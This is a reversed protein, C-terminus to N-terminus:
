PQGLEGAILIDAVVGADEPQLGDHETMGRHVAAALEGGEVLAPNPPKALHRQLRGLRAGLRKRDVAVSFLRSTRNM